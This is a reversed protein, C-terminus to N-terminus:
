ADIQRDLVAALLNSYEYTRRPLGYRDTSMGYDRLEAVQEATFPLELVTERVDVDLTGDDADLWPQTRLKEDYEISFEDGGMASVIDDLSGIEVRDGGSVLFVTGNMCEPEYREMTVLELEVPLLTAIAHIGCGSRKIGRRRVAGAPGLMTPPQFPIAKM